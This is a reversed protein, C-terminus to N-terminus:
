MMRYLLYPFGALMGIIVFPGMPFISKRTMRHLILSYLCFVFLTATMVFMPFIVDPYGFLFGIVVCLKVDGAGFQHSGLLFGAIMWIVLVGLATLISNPLSHIGGTLIRFCLGFVFLVIVTENAIMRIQLDVLFVVLGTMWIAAVLILAPWSSDMCACAGLGLMSFIACAGKYLSLYRSEEPVEKQRKMCKYEILKQSCGPVM